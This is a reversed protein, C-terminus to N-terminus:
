NDIYQISVLDANLDLSAVSVQYAKVSYGNKALLVVIELSSHPDLSLGSDEIYKVM